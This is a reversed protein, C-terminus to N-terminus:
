YQGLEQRRPGEVGQPQGQLAPQQGQLPQQGQPIPQGHFPQQGQAIQQGQAPVSHVGQQLQQQYGYATPSGELTSERPSASSNREPAPALGQTSNPPEQGPKFYGAAYGGPPSYPQTWAPTTQQTAPTTPPGDKKKRRQIFVFGLGILGVVAVGGVVGGAIAGARNKKGGDGSGEKEGEGEGGEGGEGESSPDPTPTRNPPVISSEDESLPLPTFRRDSTQGIYTTFIAQPTSIDVNNCAYDYIDSSFSVTNCYPLESDM